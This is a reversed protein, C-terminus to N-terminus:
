VLHKASIAQFLELLSKAVFDIATESTYFATQLTLLLYLIRKELVRLQEEQTSSEGDSENEVSVDKMEQSVDQEHIDFDPQDDGGTPDAEAGNATTDNKQEIEQHDNKHFRWWSFDISM